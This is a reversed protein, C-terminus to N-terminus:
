FVFGDPNRLATVTEVLVRLAISSKSFLKSVACRVGESTRCNFREMLVMVSKTLPEDEEKSILIALEAISSILRAKVINAGNLFTRFTEIKPEARV